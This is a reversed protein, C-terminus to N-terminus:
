MILMLVTLLSTTNKVEKCQVKINCVCCPHRLALSKFLCGCSNRLQADTIIRFFRKQVTFMKNSYLLNSRMIVGNFKISSVQYKISRANNTYYLFYDVLHLFLYNILM